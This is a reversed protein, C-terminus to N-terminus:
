IKNDFEKFSPNACIQIHWDKPIFKLRDVIRHMQQLITFYRNPITSFNFYLKTTLKPIIKTEESAIKIVDLAENYDYCSHLRFNDNIQLKRLEISENNLKILGGFSLKSLSKINSSQNM